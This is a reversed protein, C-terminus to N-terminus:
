QGKVAKENWIIMKTRAAQADPANPLLELYHRMRDAAFVFDNQEAYLMGLNFWGEPWMPQIEIGSEYHEIASDLNKEQLANEALIRHSDAEASLPPKAPNERWAKALASFAALEKEGEPHYAAYSLRNFADAFKQATAEDPWDLYYPVVLKEAHKPRNDPLYTLNYCRGYSAGCLPLKYAEVYGIGFAVSVKGDTTKNNLTLPAFFTFGAASLRINTPASHVETTCVSLICVKATGAFTKKIADRMAARAQPVSLAMASAPPPDGNKFVPADSGASREATSILLLSMLALLVTKRNM